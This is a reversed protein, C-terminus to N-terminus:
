RAAEDSTQDDPILRGRRQFWRTFREPHLPRGDGWTFVLGSDQWGSGVLLREEAQRDV